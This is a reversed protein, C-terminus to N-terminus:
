ANDKTQLNKSHKIKNMQLFPKFWLELFDAMDAFSMGEDNLFGILEEVSRIENFDEVTMQNEIPLKKNLWFVLDLLTDDTYQLEKIVEKPDLHLLMDKALNLPLTSSKSKFDFLISNKSSAELNDLIGLACYSYHGLRFPIPTYLYEKGQLFGLSKAKRLQKIWKCFKNLNASTIKTKSM